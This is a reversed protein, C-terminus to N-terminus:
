RLPSDSEYFRFITEGDKVLHLKERAFKEILYSDSQISLIKARLLNNESELNEVDHRRRELSKDKSILDRIGGDKFWSAAGVAVAFVLTLLFLQGARSVGNGSVKSERAKLM